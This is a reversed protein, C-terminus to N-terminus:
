GASSAPRWLPHEADYRLAKVMHVVAGARPESRFAVNDVMARMLALGRGTEADVDVDDAVASTPFGSGQDIVTISCEDSALEVLVEYTDTDAAHDIVNACAETIALEVDAVDERTVGFATLAQVALKRVVPVSSTERPLSLSLNLHPVARSSSVPRVPGADYADPVWREVALPVRAVPGDTPDGLLRAQETPVLDGARLRLGAMVDPDPGEAIEAFARGSTWNLHLRLPGVGLDTPRDALAQEVASRAPAVTGPDAAHRELHEALQTLARDTTVKDAPDVIWDM